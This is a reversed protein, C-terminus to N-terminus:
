YDYIKSNMKEKKYRLHMRKSYDYDKARVMKVSSTIPHGVKM